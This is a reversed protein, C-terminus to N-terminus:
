SNEVVRKVTVDTGEQTEEMESQPLQQYIFSSSIVNIDRDTIDYYM